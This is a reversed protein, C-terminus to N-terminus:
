SDNSTIERIMKKFRRGYQVYSAFLKEPTASGGELHVVSAVHPEISLVGDYGDELIIRSLIERLRADGEGCVTYERSRGGEPNMRADKIHIYDFNHRITEFFLEPELGHSVTNGLDYLLLFHPHGVAERLDLMHGASLGGWGECNEHCLYIGGDAAIRALEKLRKVATQFWQHHEVGDGTWSMIRINRTKLREMRPISVKLDDIDTQFDAGIHRSWNGIRSAFGAVHMNESELVACLREFEPDALEGAVNKGDVLRLEIHDWELKKHARVQSSIDGGAEDAIGTLIM